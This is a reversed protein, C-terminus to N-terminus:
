TPVCLKSIYPDYNNNVFFFRGIEHNQIALASEFGTASFRHSCPDQVGAKRLLFSIENYKKKQGMKLNRAGYWPSVWNLRLGVWVCCQWERVQIHRDLDEEGFSFATLGAIEAVDL